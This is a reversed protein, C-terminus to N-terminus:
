QVQDNDEETGGPLHRLLEEFLDLGHGHRELNLTVIMGSTSVADYFLGVFSRCYRYGKIFIIIETISIEKAYRKTKSM